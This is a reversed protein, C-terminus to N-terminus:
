KKYMYIKGNLNYEITNVEQIYECGNINNVIYITSQNIDM